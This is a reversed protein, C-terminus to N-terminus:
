VLPIRLLQGVYIRDPDQLKNLNASFIRESEDASDYYHKALARLTDGRKIQYMEYRGGSDLQDPKQGVGLKGADLADLATGVTALTPPRYPKADRLNKPQEKWRRRASMSVEYLQTPGPQRDAAAFFNMARYLLGPKESNELFDAYNPALEFIRSHQGSDLELGMHRAGDLVWDLAQDSLGRREGGGGVSSHTGPFWQQQYRADDADVATGAQVNLEALNTWLTPQFDKRHEDIAIAHRASRVFGSLSTDHFEYKKDILASWMFRAPIGLAGVTDWVGLYTILLRPASGLVHGPVNKARWQDEAQSVCIDPSHDRRFCMMRETFSESQERTRYNEIAEHVRAASSRLLIGCNSLLGVFSRATYAGRSFGFVHIEDGPTHNFILFRYADALNQLLGSGFMGGRIREGRRTGVGEDYFILQATNDSALPLVSEATIVVNTPCTADLRNWTGDFCFVLRKM